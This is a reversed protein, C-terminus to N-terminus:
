QVPLISWMTTGTGQIPYDTTLIAKGTVADLTAVTIEYNSNVDSLHEKTFDKTMYDVADDYSDCLVAHGEESFDYSVAVVYRSIGFKKEMERILKKMELKNEAWRVQEEAKSKFIDLLKKKANNLDKMNVTHTDSGTENHEPVATKDTNKEDQKKRASKIRGLSASARAHVKDREKIWREIKNNLMYIVGKTKYHVGIINLFGTPM